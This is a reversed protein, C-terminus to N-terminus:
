FFVDSKSFCLCLCLVLWSISLLCPPPSFLLRPPPSFPPPEGAEGAPASGAARPHLGSLYPHLPHRGCHSAASSSPLGSLSSNSLSCVIQTQHYFGLVMLSSHLSCVTLASKCWVPSPNFSRKSSPLSAAPPNPHFLLSQNSSTWWIATQEEQSLQLEEGSFGRCLTIVLPTLMVQSKM